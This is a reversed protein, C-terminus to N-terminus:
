EGRLKALIQKIEKERKGELWKPQNAQLVSKFALKEAILKKQAEDFRTVADNLVDKFQTYKQTGEADSVSYKKGTLMNLWEAILREHKPLENLEADKEAKERQENWDKHQNRIKISADDDYEFYGYGSATKSGMGQNELMQLLLNIAFTAWAQNVAEVVFYFSGQCAIQQNPIPDEMEDIDQKNNYYNQHHTTIIEEVFPKDNKEVSLKDNTNPIWWADHWIVAGSNEEDGFLVQRINDPLGIQEAYTAVAGKVSSGALMPMGYTHHTCIGTELATASSLGTYLRGIIKASTFAYRSKDSTIFLWRKYAKEYLDSPKINCVHAIVNEKTSKDDKDWASLGRQLLLGANASTLRNSLRNHPVVLGRLEDRMIIM